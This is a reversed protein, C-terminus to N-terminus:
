LRGFKGEFGAMDGASLFKAQEVWSDRRIRGARLPEAIASMQGM